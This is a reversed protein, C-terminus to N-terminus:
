NISTYGEFGSHCVFDKFSIAISGVGIKDPSLLSSKEQAQLSSQGSGRLVAIQLM